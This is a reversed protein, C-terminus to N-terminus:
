RRGKLLAYLMVLVVAWQPMVKSAVRVQAAVSEQPLLAWHLWVTFTTSVV